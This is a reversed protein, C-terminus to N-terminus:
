ERDPRQDRAKAEPLPEGACWTAGVTRDCDQWDECGPTQACRRLDVLAEAAEGVVGFELLKRATKLHAVCPARM